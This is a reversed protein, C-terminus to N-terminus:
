DHGLLFSIERLEEMASYERDSLPSSSAVLADFEAESLHLERFIQARRRLLERRTMRIAAPHTM